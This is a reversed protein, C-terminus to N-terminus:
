DHHNHACEHVCACTPILVKNGRHIFMLSNCRQMTCPARPPAINVVSMLELLAEVDVIAILFFPEWSCEGFEELM